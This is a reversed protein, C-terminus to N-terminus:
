ELLGEPIGDTLDVPQFRLGVMEPTFEVPPKKPEEEKKEKPLKIPQVRKLTINSKPPEMSPQPEMSPRPAHSPQEPEPPPAPRPPKKLVVTPEKPAPQAAAPAPQPPAASPFEPQPGFPVPKPPPRPACKRYESPMPAAAEEADKAEKAEQQQKKIEKPKEYKTRYKVATEDSSTELALELCTQLEERVTNLLLM